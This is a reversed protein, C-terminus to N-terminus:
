EILFKQNFNKRYSDRVVDIYLFNHPTETAYEYLQKFDNLPLGIKLKKHIEEIKEDSIQPYLLVYQLQAIASPKLDTISQGSMITMIKSHRGIKCLRTVAKNRMEEGQDDIVIINENYLKPDKYEKEEEEETDSEIHIKLKEKKPKEVEEDEEKQKLENILDNLINRGTDEDVIDMYTHISKVGKENLMEIMKEYTADKNITSVFLYINSCRSACKQLIKYITSTKGSRRKGSVFICDYLSPFLNKGRIKEADISGGIIPRVIENNIKKVKIM